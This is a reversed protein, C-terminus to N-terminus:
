RDGGPLCDVEGIGIPRASNEVTVSGVAAQVVEQAEQFAPISIREVVPPRHHAQVIGGVGGAGELAAGVRDIPWWITVIDEIWQKRL